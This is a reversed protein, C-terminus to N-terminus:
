KESQHLLEISTPNYLSLKSLINLYSSLKVIVKGTIKIVDDKYYKNESKFSIFHYGNLAGDIFCDINYLPNSGSEFSLISGNSKCIWGDVYILETEFEKYVIQIQEEKRTGLLDPTIVPLANVKKLFDLQSKPAGYKKLFDDRLKSDEIQKDIARQRADKELKTVTEYLLDEGKIIRVIKNQVTESHSVINLFVFVILCGLGIKEFKDMALSGM